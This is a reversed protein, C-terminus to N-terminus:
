RRRRRRTKNGIKPLFRRKRQFVPCVWPLGERGTREFNRWVPRRRGPPARRRSTSIDKPSRDPSFTMSSASSSRTTRGSTRRTVSWIAAASVAGSVSSSAARGPGPIIGAIGKGTGKLLDVVLEVLQAPGGAQRDDRGGTLGHILHQGAGIQGGVRNQSRNGGHVADGRHFLHGDIRDHGPTQGSIQRDNKRGDPAHQRGVDLQAAPGAGVGVPHREGKTLPLTAFSM